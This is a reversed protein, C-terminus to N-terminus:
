AAGPTPSERGVGEVGDVAGPDDVASVLPALPVVTPGGLPVVAPGEVRGPRSPWQRAIREEFETARQRAREVEEDTSLVQFAPRCERIADTAAESRRHGFSPSM